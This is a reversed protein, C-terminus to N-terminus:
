LSELNRQQQLSDTQTPIGLQNRELQEQKAELNGLRGHLRKLEALLERQTEDSAGSGSSIRLAELEQKRYKIVYNGIIAALPIMFIVIPIIIDPNEM